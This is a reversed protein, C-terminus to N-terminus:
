VGTGDMFVLRTRTEKPVVVQWKGSANSGVAM